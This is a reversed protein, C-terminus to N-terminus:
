QKMKRLLLKKAIAKKEKKKLQAHKRVKKGRLLSQIKISAKKVMYSHKSISSGNLTDIVNIADFLPPLQESIERLMERQKKRVTPFISQIVAIVIGRKLVPQLISSMGQVDMDVLPNYDLCNYCDEIAIPMGTRMCKAVAGQGQEMISYENWKVGSQQWQVSHHHEHIMENFSRYSRVPHRHVDLCYMIDQQTPINKNSSQRSKKRREQLTLYEPDDEGITKKLYIAVITAGVANRVTDEISQMFETRDMKLFGGWLSPVTTMVLTRQRLAEDLDSNKQSHSVFCGSIDAIIELLIEDLTTFSGTGYRNLVELVITCRGKEDHGPCALINKTVFNNKKDSGGHFREDELPNSVIITENTRAVAGAIGQNLDLLIEKSTGIYAHLKKRERDVIFLSARECNLASATESM